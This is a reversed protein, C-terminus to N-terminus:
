KNWMAVFCTKWRPTTETCKLNQDSEHGFLLRTATSYKDWTINCPPQRIALGAHAVLARSLSSEPSGLVPSTVRPVDALSTPSLKYRAASLSRCNPTGISRSTTMFYRRQLSLPIGLNQPIYHLTHTNNKLIFCGGGGIYFVFQLWTEKLHSKWISIEFSVPVRSVTKTTTSRNFHLKMTMYVNVFDLKHQIFMHFPSNLKSICHNTDCVCCIM